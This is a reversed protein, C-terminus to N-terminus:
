RLVPRRHREGESGSRVHALMWVLGLAVVDAGHAIASGPVPRGAVLDDLCSWIMGAALVALMPLIGAAREPRWAVIVLGIALAAAFVGIHRAFHMHTMDGHGLLLPIAAFMQVMAIVMTAIRLPRVRDPAANVPPRDPLATLIAATRDIEIEAPQVRLTRHLEAAEASWTRCRACEALHTRIVLDPLGPDEGDLGASLSFRIHPCDMFSSDNPAASFNGFIANGAGSPSTVPPM